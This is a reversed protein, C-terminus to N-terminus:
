ISFGGFRGSDEWTFIEDVSLLNDMVVGISVDFVERTTLSWSYYSPYNNAILCGSERHGDTCPKMVALNLGRARRQPNKGDCVYGM